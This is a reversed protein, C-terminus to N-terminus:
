WNNSQKYQQIPFEQTNPEFCQPKMQNFYLGIEGAFDRVLTEIEEDSSDPLRIDKSIQINPEQNIGKHDNIKRWELDGSLNEDPRRFLDGLITDKAGMFNMLIRITTRCGIERYIAKTMYTLQWLYGIISVFSFFRISGNQYFLPYTGVFHMIGSPLINIAQLYQNQDQGRHGTWKGLIGKPNATANFLMDIVPRPLGHFWSGDRGIRVDPQLKQLILNPNLRCEGNFPYYLISIWGTAPVYKENFDAKNKVLEVLGQSLTNRGFELSGTDSYGNKSLFGIIKDTFHDDENNGNETNLNIETPTTQTEAPSNKLNKSLENEIATIIKSFKSSTHIEPTLVNIDSITSILQDFHDRIYKYQDLEEHISKLYSQDTSKRITGNLSEFQENWYNVYELRDKATFIHASSLVIPFIRGSFQQNREIESLEYMCHKSRLYKDSIVLIICQGAGMRQEFAKISGRYDLDKKDRVISISKELFANELEDVIHDSQADWAYSVFVAKEYQFDM